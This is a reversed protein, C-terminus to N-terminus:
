SSLVTTRVSNVAKSVAYMDLSGDAPPAMLSRLRDVNRPDLWEDWHDPTIAMPMRDHIRGVSDTATTAIITYDARDPEPRRRAAVQRV